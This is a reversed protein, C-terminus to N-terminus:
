RPKILYSKLSKERLFILGEPSYFASHPTIIIRGESWSENRWAKVLPHNESPPENPLVDLGIAKIKDTKLATYIADIDIIVGRATNVIVVSPKFLKILDSDVLKNTEENALCHISIYDADKALEEPQMSSRQFILNRLEKQKNKSNELNSEIRTIENRQNERFREM